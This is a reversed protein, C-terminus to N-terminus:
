STKESVVVTSDQARINLNFISDDSNYLKFHNMYSRFRNRLYEERLSPLLDHIEEDSSDSLLTSVYNDELTRPNIFLISWDLSEGQKQPSLTISIQLMSRVLKVFLHSVGRAYLPKEILKIGSVDKLLTSAVLKTNEPNFRTIYEQPFYLSVPIARDIPVLDSRVFDIRLLKAQPDDIELPLDFLAPFNIHKWQDPVFFSVEDGKEDRKKTAIADLEGKSINNLNFTLKQGQAKLHKVVEEPGSVTLTLRYPWIDLFQYGRPAEGIPQTILIPIKKTVLKTLRIIFRQHSVDSIGKSIDIDPTLSILNRKSISAIWEDPKNSADIVVELDSSSLYSLFARKGTLTLTVKKSLLGDKHLGDITKDQALNVIRVPINGITKTSTLSQNVTLWIVLALIISVAKRPWNGIIFRKFLTKM